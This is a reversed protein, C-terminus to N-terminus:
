DALLKYIAKTSVSISIFELCWFFGEFDTVCIM